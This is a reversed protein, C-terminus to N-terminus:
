FAYRVTLYINSNDQMAGFTGSRKGGFLNAGIEAWLNDSFAYRLSPIVYRDEESLGLFAFVNFTVTQHAFFQTLRVTAVKRVRDKAPFGAPLSERYAAYDRMWEGYLQLGLTADEWLQRTYGILGRSQSNEISPDRGDRDQTSDYYGAELSLVGKGIPGTLSAGVTNLRPYSGIIGTGTVQWAPSRYHTRSAYGTLEWNDLYGSVRGSIELEKPSNGPEETSRPLGASLPDALVFRRSTPTNDPRFGAIVLELNVLAPYANLKLADSGLKLYQLPQGTFLAVQDKPFTDNIFLLDGVGWTVVQRGLRATAKESILDGFLERTEVSTDELVVDRVLDFRGAFAANGSSNKGEAKLQGRLEAAPFECATGSPCAVQNTRWAVHSQAFGGWSIGQATAASSWGLALSAAAMSAAARVSRSIAVIM